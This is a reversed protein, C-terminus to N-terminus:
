AGHPTSTKKVEDEVEKTIENDMTEYKEYLGVIVSYHLRDLIELLKDVEANTPNNEDNFYPNGGIHTIARALIHKKYDLAKSVADAGHSSNLANQFQKASLVILRFKVGKFEFEDAVHGLTFLEDLGNM